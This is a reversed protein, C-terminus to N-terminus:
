VQSGSNTCETRVIDARQKKAWNMEVPFSFRTSRAPDSLTPRVCLVPSLSLSACDMFLLREAKPSTMWDRAWFVACIGYRFELSVCRNCSLRPPSLLVRIITCTDGAAMSKPLCKRRACALAQNKIAAFPSVSQEMLNAVLTREPSSPTAAFFRWLEALLNQKQLWARRLSSSSCPANPVSPQHM